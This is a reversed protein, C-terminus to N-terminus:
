CVLSRHVMIKQAKQQKLWYLIQLREKEKSTAAKKLLKKLDELSEKVKTGTVGVM